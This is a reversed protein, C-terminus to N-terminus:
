KCFIFIMFNIKQGWSTYIFFIAKETKIIVSTFAFDTNSHKQLERAIFLILGVCHLSDIEEVFFEAAMVFNVGHSKFTWFPAFVILHVIYFGVGGGEGALSNPIMLRNPDTSVILVSWDICTTV